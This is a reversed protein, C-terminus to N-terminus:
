KRCRDLAKLVIGSVISTGLLIYTVSCPDGSENTVVCAALVCGVCIVGLADQITKRM